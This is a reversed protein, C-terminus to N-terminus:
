SKTLVDFLGTNSKTFSFYPSIWSHLKITLIQPTYFQLTSSNFSLVLDTKGGWSAKM